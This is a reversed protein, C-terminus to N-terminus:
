VPSCESGYDTLGTQGDIFKCLQELHSALVLKAPGRTASSHGASAAGAPRLALLRPLCTQLMTKSSEYCLFRDLVVQSHASASAAARGGRSASLRRSEPSHRM